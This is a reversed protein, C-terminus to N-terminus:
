GTASQPLTSLRAAVAAARHPLALQGFDAAAAQLLKQAQDAFHPANEAAARRLMMAGYEEKLEAADLRNATRQVIALGEEFHRQAADWEDMAAHLLARAHSLGFLERDYPSTQYIDEMTQVHRLAHAWDRQIIYYRVLQLGANVRHVQSMNIQNFARTAYKFAAAHNGRTLMLEALYVLNSVQMVKYNARVAIDYAELLYAEAQDLNGLELHIYGAEGLLRALAPQNTTQHRLTLAKNIFELATTFPGDGAYYFAAVLRYTELRHAAEGSLEAEALAQQYATLAEALQGNTVCVNGIHAFARSALGHEAIQVALASAKTYYDTAEEVHDLYYAATGLSHLTEVQVRGGGEVGDVNQLALLLEQRAEEPQGRQIYIRGQIWFARATLLYARREDGTLSLMQTDAKSLYARAQDYNGAAVDATARDLYFITHAVVLPHGCVACSTTKEANAAACSPCIIPTSNTM